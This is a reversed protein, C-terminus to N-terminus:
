NHLSEKVKRYLSVAEDHVIDANDGHVSVTVHPEQKSNEEIKIHYPKLLEQTATTIQETTMISEDGNDSDQKDKLTLLM